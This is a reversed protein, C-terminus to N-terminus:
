KLNSFLLSELWLEWVLRMCLLHFVVVLRIFLLLAQVQAQQALVAVQVPVQAVVVVTPDKQAQSQQLHDQLRNSPPFFSSPLQLSSVIIFHSPSSSSSSVTSTAVFLDTAQFTQCNSSAPIRPTYPPPGNLTAPM